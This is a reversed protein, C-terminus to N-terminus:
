AEFRDHQATAQPPAGSAAAGDGDHAFVDRWAYYCTGCMVVLFAMGYATFLAWALLQGLMPTVSAGVVMAVLAAASVLLLTKHM